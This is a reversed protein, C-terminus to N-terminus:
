QKMIQGTLSIVSAEGDEAFEQPAPQNINFHKELMGQLLDNAFSDIDGISLIICAQKKTVFRGKIRLRREAVKKRCEYIYKKSKTLRKKIIFRM